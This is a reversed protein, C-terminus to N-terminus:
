LIHLPFDDENYRSKPTHHAGVVGAAVAAANAAALNANAMNRLLDKNSLTSVRRRAAFIKNSRTAASLASMQQVLEESTPRRRPDVDWCRNALASYESPTDPPFAPRLGEAQVREIIQDSNLGLYVPQGTVIEWMVIGFAYIDVAADVATAAGGAGNRGDQPMAEPAVHTITGSYRRRRRFAASGPGAAASASAVFDAETLLKVLGFDSLKATFGRVDSPSSKLLVNQPKLDRHVLNLSHLYRLALAVELLTLYVHPWAPQLACYAGKVKDRFIGNRIADALCGADCFEMLIVLAKRPQQAAPAQKPQAGPAAATGAAHRQGMAADAAGYGAGGSGGAENASSGKSRGEGGAGAASAASDDRGGAGGSGGAFDNAASPLPTLDLQVTSPEHPFLYIPPAAGSIRAQVPPIQVTVDTFFTLVQVINPHSLTSLVALEVANRLVETECDREMIVKVAVEASQYMGLYVTGFGGSGLKELMVISRLDDPRNFMTNYSVSMRQAQQVRDQVGSILASIRKGTFSRSMLMFSPNRVRAAAAGVASGAAAAISGPAPGLGPGPYPGTNPSSASPGFAMAKESVSRLAETGARLSLSLEVGGGGGGSSPADSVGIPAASAAAATNANVHSPSVGGSTYRAHLPVRAPSPRAVDSAVDSAVDDVSSLVAGLQAATNRLVITRDKPQKIVKSKDLVERQLQLWEGALDDNLKAMVLPELVVLLERLHVLLEQLVAPSAPGSTLLYFALVPHEGCRLSPSGCSRQGVGPPSPPYAGAGVAAADGSHRLAAAPGTSAGGGGGGGGGRGGSSTGASVPNRLVPSTKDREREREMREKDRLAALYGVSHTMFPSSADGVSLVRTVQASLVGSGVNGAMRGSPRRPQPGGGGGGGGGGGHLRSNSPRRIGGSGGGGPGSAGGSRDWMVGLMLATTHHATAALFVDANPNGPNQMFAVCDGIWVGARNAIAEALLTNEVRYTQGEIQLHHQSFNSPAGPELSGWLAADRLADGILGGGFLGPQSISSGGVGRLQPPRLLVGGGEGSGLTGATSQLRSHPLLLNPALVASSPQPGPAGAGMPPPPIPPGTLAPSGAAALEVPDPVLNAVSHMQVQYQLAVALDSAQGPYMMSLRTMRGRQMHLGWPMGAPGAGGAAEGTGGSHGEQLSSTARALLVQRMAPQSVPTHSVPAAPGTTVEDVVGSAVVSNYPLAEDFIIASSADSAICSIRCTLRMQHFRESHLRVVCRSLTRILDDLSDVAMLDEVVGCYGILQRDRFLQGIFAGVLELSTQWMPSAFKNPDEDALTLVAVTDSGVTIAAAVFASLGGAERLMEWDLPLRDGPVRRSLFRQPQQGAVQYLSTAQSADLFQPLGLPCLRALRGGAVVPLCTIRTSSLVSASVYAVKFREALITVIRGLQNYSSGPIGSFVRLIDGLQSLEPVAQSDAEVAAAKHRGSVDPSAAATGKATASAATTASTPHPPMAALDLPIPRLANQPPRQAPHAVLSIMQSTVKKALHGGAELIYANHDCRGSLEDVNEVDMCLGESSSRNLRWVPLVTSRGYVLIVRVRGGDAEEAVALPHVLAVLAGIDLPPPLLGSPSVQVGRLATALGEASATVGAGEWKVEDKATAFMGIGQKLLEFRVAQKAPDAGPDACADLVFVITEPFYSPTAQCM